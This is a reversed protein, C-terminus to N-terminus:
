NRGATIKKRSGCAKLANPGAAIGGGVGGGGWGSNLPTAHGGVGFTMMLPDGSTVPIVPLSLATM